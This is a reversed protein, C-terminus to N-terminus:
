NTLGRGGFDVIVSISFVCVCVYLFILVVFAAVIILANGEMPNQYIVYNNEIKKQKRYLASYMFLNLRFKRSRQQRRLHYQYTANGVKSPAGLNNKLKSLQSCSSITRGSTRQTDDAVAAQSLRCGSRNDPSSYPLYSKNSIADELEAGLLSGGNLKCPLSHLRSSFSDIASQYVEDSFYGSGISYHGSPNFNGNLRSYVDVSGLSRGPGAVLHNASHDDSSLSPRPYDLDSNASSSSSHNNNTTTNGCCLGVHTTGRRNVSLM